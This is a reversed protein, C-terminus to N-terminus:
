LSIVLLGCNLDLGQGSSASQDLTQALTCPHLYFHHPIDFDGTAPVSPLGTALGFTPQAPALLFHHLASPCGPSFPICPRVRGSLSIPRYSLLSSNCLRLNPPNSSYLLSLPSFLPSYPSPISSTSISLIPIARPLLYPRTLTIKAVGYQAPLVRSRPHGYKVLNCGSQNTLLVFATNRYPEGYAIGM